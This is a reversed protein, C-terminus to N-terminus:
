GAPPAEDIGPAADSASLSSVSAMSWVRSRILAMTIVMVVPVIGAQADLASLGDNVATVFEPILMIVAAITSAVVAWETDLAWALIKRLTNMQGPYGEVRSPDKM